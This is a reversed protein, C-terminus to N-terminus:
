EHGQRVGQGRGWANQAEHVFPSTVLAYLKALREVQRGRQADVPTRKAHLRVRIRGHEDIEIDGLELRAGRRAEYYARGIRVGMTPEPWAVAGALSEVTIPRTGCRATRSCSRM